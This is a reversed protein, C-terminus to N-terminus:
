SRIKGSKKNRTPTTKGNESLLYWVPSCGRAAASPRIERRTTSKNRSPSM